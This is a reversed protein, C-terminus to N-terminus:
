RLITNLFVKQPNSLNHQRINVDFEIKKSFSNSHYYQRRTEQALRYPITPDLKLSSFISYKPSSSPLQARQTLPGTMQQPLPFSNLCVLAYPDKSMNQSLFLAIM